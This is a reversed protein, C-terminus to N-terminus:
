HHADAASHARKAKMEAAKAKEAQIVEAPRPDVRYPNDLFVGGIMLFLLFLPIAAYLWVIWDEHKLHMFFLAVLTAKCSAVLMAVVINVNSIGVLKDFDVYSVAVTFVTLGVLAIFITKYSLGSHEETHAM